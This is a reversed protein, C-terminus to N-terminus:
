KEHNKLNIIRTLILLAFSIIIITLYDYSVDTNPMEIKENEMTIEVIEQDDIISFTIPEKNLIYGYPASVEEIKYSGATINELIILGLEDTKGLFLM